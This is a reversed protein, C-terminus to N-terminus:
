YVRSPLGFGSFHRALTKESVPEGFIFCCPDHMSKAPTKEFEPNYGGSESKKGLEQAGELPKEQM